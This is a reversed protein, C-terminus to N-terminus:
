CSTSWCCEFGPRLEGDSCALDNPCFGGDILEGGSDAFGVDQVPGQSDAASTDAASTDSAMGSDVPSTEDGCGLMAGGIVLVNFLRKFEM